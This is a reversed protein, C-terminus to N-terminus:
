LQTIKSHWTQNDTILKHDIILTQDSSLDFSPVIDTYAPSIGKTVFFDLLDPM